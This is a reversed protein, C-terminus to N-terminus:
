ERRAEPPGHMFCCSGLRRWLAVGITPELSLHTEAPQAPGGAVYNLHTEFSYQHWKLPAYEYVHIEFLDQAKAASIVGLVSLLLLRGRV